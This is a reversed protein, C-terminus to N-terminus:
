AMAHNGGDRLKRNEAAKEQGQLADIVSRTPGYLTVIGDKLVLLRTVFNILFKRHTVIITTMGKEAATKLAHILATEGDVDLNADPEDLVLVKPQGFFARALGIRQRQGASLSAGSVGIDTDYGEPLRMILEHADAAIAAEIVMEDAVDLRMRAINERVTGNFLEVDQPLYGIAAGFQERHWRHVEYGDLRVSGSRPLAAGVLLRALTSKGAASPGIIGLTEGAELEFSVNKLVAEQRGPPIYILREASIQGKPEPMYMGPPRQPLFTLSENLRTYAKRAELLQKWTTIAAEFPAMARGMLISAAIISGSTIENHLALYAGWGIIAIQLALRLFKTAAQLAASRFSARRQLLSVQGNAEAWRAAITGTMGMAEIVEANRMALDVQQLNRVNIESAEDLPARMALENVWALGFLIVSGALAIFGLSFHIVFIVLLFIISWPADFLALLGGGTLFGKVTAFDRLNQTGRLGVLTAGSLSLSLLRQGLHAEMWEGARILTFSRLAQLAASAFFAVLMIVSLWFLTAMSGTSIVRDLVQMSYLPVLLLLLNIFLSFAFMHVFVPFSTRLAEEIMNKPKKRAM